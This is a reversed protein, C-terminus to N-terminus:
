VKQKSTRKNTLKKCNNEYDIFKLNNKRITKQVQKRGNNKRNTKQVRIKRTIDNRVEM